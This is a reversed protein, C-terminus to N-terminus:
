YVAVSSRRAAEVEINELEIRSFEQLQDAKLQEDYDELAFSHLTDTYNIYDAFRIGNVERINYAERFRTGGENVHFEYALYDMTHTRQHFWYVYVDEFDTGGGEEDFTVRIKNYPEQKITDVGLYSTNVAPDDLAYPLLAFYIVSNISNAYNNQDEESLSVREGDIERMLGQKTLVDHVKGLSDQWTREYTFQGGDLYADYHRDRFDFSIHSGNYQQGGHVEIAQAVIEKPNPQSTCAAVMLLLLLALPWYHM